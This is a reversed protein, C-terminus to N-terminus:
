RGSGVATAKSGPPTRHGTATDRLRVTGYVAAPRRRGTRRCAAVAPCWGRTAKSGPANTGTATDWLRVTADNGASAVLAGDVSLAVARVWDGHGQLRPGNAATGTATDWLRVTADNGGSAALGGDAPLLWRRSKVMM